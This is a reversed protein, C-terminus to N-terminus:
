SCCCSFLSCLEDHLQQKGESCLPAVTSQNGTLSKEKSSASFESERLVSILRLQISMIVFCLCYFLPSLAALSSQKLSNWSLVLQLPSALSAVSGNDHIEPTVSITSKWLHRGRSTTVESWFESNQATCRPGQLVWSGVQATFANNPCCSGRQHGFGIWLIKSDKGGREESM